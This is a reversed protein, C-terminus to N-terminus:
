KRVINIIRYVVQRRDSLSKYRRLRKMVFGGGVLVLGILGMWWIKGEGPRGMSETDGYLSVGAWFFPHAMLPDATSLFDTKAKQLAVDKPEGAALYELFRQVIDATSADNARWHSMVVSKSGAYSFARALSLTGEGATLDGDGTSCASLIVLDADVEAHYIDFMTLQSTASIEHDGDDPFFYLGSELPADPLLFTHTALHLIGTHGAVASFNEHTAQERFFAKGKFLKSGRTIETTSAPLPTLDDRMALYPMSHAQVDDFPAFGAYRLTPAHAPNGAIFANLSHAYSIAYDSMLWRVGKPHNDSVLLDFPLYCLSHHPSVTVRQIDDGSLYPELKEWLHQYLVHSTKADFQGASSMVDREKLSAIWTTYAPKWTFPFWIFQKGSIYFLHGEDGVLFYSLFARDESRLKTQLDDLNIDGDRFKLKFYRPHEKEMKKLLLLKEDELRVVQRSWHYTSDDETVKKERMRTKLDYIDHEIGNLEATLDEPLGGFTKANREMMALRLISAKSKESVHLASRLYQQEGTLQYLKIATKLSADYIEVTKSFLFDQSEDSTLDRRMVDIMDVVEALDKWATHLLTPDTGDAQAYSIDARAKMAISRLYRYESSFGLANPRMGRQHLVQLLSDAIHRGKDYKGQLKYLLALRIANDFLHPFFVEDNSQMVTIAQRILRIAGDLDGKAQLCESLNTLSALAYPHSPGLRGAIIQYSQEYLAIAKTLNGQAFHIGALEGIAGGYEPHAVGYREKMIELLKQNYPIAKEHDGIDLYVRAINSYYKGVSPHNPPYHKLKYELATLAYDLAKRYDKKKRYLMGMNNYIRNHNEDDAGLVKDFIQKARLYCSESAEFEDLKYYDIAMHMFITGVRESEPGHLAKAIALAKGNAATSTKLNLMQSYIVARDMYIGVVADHKEGHVSICAILATDLYAIAKQLYRLKGYTNAAKQYLTYHSEKSATTGRALEIAELFTQLAQKYAGDAYLESGKERLQDVTHKPSSQAFGAISLVLLVISCIPRIIAQLHDIRGHNGASTAQKFSKIM